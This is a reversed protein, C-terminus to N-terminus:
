LSKACNLQGAAFAGYYQRNCVYEVSSGDSLGLTVLVDGNAQLASQGSALSALVGADATVALRLSHELGEVVAWADSGRTLDNRTEALGACRVEKKIVTGHRSSEEVLSCAQAVPGTATTLEVAAAAGALDVAAATLGTESITGALVLARSVHEISEAAFWAQSGRALVDNDGGGNGGRAFSPQALAALGLALALTTKL